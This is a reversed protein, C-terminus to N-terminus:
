KNFKNKAKWKYPNPCEGKQTVYDDMFMACVILVILSLWMFRIFWDTVTLMKETPLKKHKMCDNKLSTGASGVPVKCAVM